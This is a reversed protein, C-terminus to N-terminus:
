VRGFIMCGRFYFYLPLPYGLDIGRRTYTTM